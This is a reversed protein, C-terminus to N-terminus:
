ERFQHQKVVGEGTASLREAIVEAVDKIEMESGGGAADSLMIM